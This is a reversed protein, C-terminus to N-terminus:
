DIDIKLEGNEMTVSSFVEDNIILSTKEGESINKGLRISAYALVWDNYQLLINERLIQYRKNIYEDGLSKYKGSLISMWQDKADKKFLDYLRMFFDFAPKNDNSINGDDSVHMFDHEYNENVRPILVADTFINTGRCGGQFERIIVRYSKENDNRFIKLDFRAKCDAFKTSIILTYKSFDIAPPKFDPCSSYVRHSILFANFEPDSSIVHEGFFRSSCDGLDIQVFSVPYWDSFVSFAAPLDASYKLSECKTEYNSTFLFGLM